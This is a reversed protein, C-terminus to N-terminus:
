RRNEASVAYEQGSKVAVPERREGEVGLRTIDQPLLRSGFHRQFTHVVGVADGRRGGAGILVGDVGVESGVSEHTVIVLSALAPLPRNGCGFAHVADGGRGNQVFVSQDQNEVVIRVQGVTWQATRPDDREVRCGPFQQPLSCARVM